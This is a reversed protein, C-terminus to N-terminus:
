ARPNEDMLHVRLGKVSESKTAVNHLHRVMVESKKNPNVIKVKYTYTPTIVSPQSRPVSDPTSPPSLPNNHVQVSIATHSGQGTQQQQGLQTVDHPASGQQPGKQPRAQGQPVATQGITMLQATRQLQWQLSRQLQQILHSTLPVITPTTPPRPRSQNGIMIACACQPTFLVHPSVVHMHCIVSIQNAM